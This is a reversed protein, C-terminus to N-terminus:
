LYQCFAGLYSLNNSSEAIKPKKPNVFCSSIPSAYFEAAV